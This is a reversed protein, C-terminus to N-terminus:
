LDTLLHEFPIICTQGDLCLQQDSQDFILLHALIQLILDDRESVVHQLAHLLDLDM